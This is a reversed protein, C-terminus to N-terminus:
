GAEEAFLRGAKFLLCGCSCEGSQRNYCDSCEESTSIGCAPRDVTNVYFRRLDGIGKFSRIDEKTHESLGFCRIAKLDPLVDIVPTCNNLECLIARQWFVKSYKRSL